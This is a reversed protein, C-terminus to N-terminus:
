QPPSPMVLANGTGARTSALGDVQAAPLRALDSMRVAMDGVCVYSDDPLFVTTVQADASHEALVHLLLARDRDSGTAFALVEDPLAIRDRDGLPSETGAVGAVVAVAADLGRLERAVATVRPGRRAAAVYGSLDPIGLWRYSALAERAPVALPGDGGAHAMVVGRVEAASGCSLCEEFLRDYPSPPSTRIPGDLAALGPVAVGFFASLATRTRALEEAPISGERTRLDVHGRRSIIRDITGTCALLAERDDEGGDGAMLANKGYFWAGGAASWLFVTYHVPSAMLVIGLLHDTPLTMCLAGFLAAEDLCSTIGKPRRSARDTHRRTAHVVDVNSYSYAPFAGDAIMEAIPGDAAAHGQAARVEANRIMAALAHDMVDDGLRAREAALDLTGNVEAVRSATLHTFSRDIVRRLAELAARQGDPTGVDVGDAARRSLAWTRESMANALVLPLVAAPADIVDFINPAIVQDTTM